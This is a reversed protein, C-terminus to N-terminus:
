NKLEKKLKNYKQKVGVKSDLELAKEFYEYASEKDDNFLAVEGFILWANTM